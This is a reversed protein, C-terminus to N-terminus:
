ASDLDPDDEGVTTEPNDHFLSYYPNNPDDDPGLVPVFEGSVNFDFPNSEDFHYPKMKMWEAYTQNPCGLFYRRGDVTEFRRGEHKRIAATSQWTGDRREYLVRLPRDEGVAEGAWRFIYNNVVEAPGIRGHNKIDM